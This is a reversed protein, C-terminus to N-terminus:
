SKLKELLHLKHSELEEIRKNLASVSQFMEEHKRAYYSVEEESEKLKVMMIKKDKESEKLSTSAEDLHSKM